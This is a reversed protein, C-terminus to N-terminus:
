VTDRNLEMVDAYTELPTDSLICILVFCEYPHAINLPGMSCARLAENTTEIFHIYRKKADPLRDTEGAHILFNVTMLDFREVGIYRRLVESLHRRSFRKEAFQGSLIAKEALPPQGYPHQSVASYLVHELDSETIDDKRWLKCAQEARRLRKQKDEEFLRDDRDLKERLERLYLENEEESERNYSDAIVNRAKDYLKMFVDFTTDALKSTGEASKMPALSALLRVDEQTVQAQQLQELGQGHPKMQLWATWLQEFRRYEYSHDFCYKCLIEFPDRPNLAAEHLAESLFRNVDEASMSLGFGLLLVEQRNVSQRTLWNKALASLNGSTPAFSVTTHHDRFADIILMQYEQLPVDRFPCTMGAKQHLYRKLYDGFSVPKLENKLSQRIQEADLDQFYPVTAEREKKGCADRTVDNSRDLNEEM